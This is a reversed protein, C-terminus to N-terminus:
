SQGDKQASRAGFHAAAMVGIFFWLAGIAAIWVFFFTPSIAYLMVGFLLMGLTHAAISLATKM